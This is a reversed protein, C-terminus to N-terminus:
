SRRSRRWVLVGALLAILSLAGVTIATNRLPALLENCRSEIAADYTHHRNVVSGCYEARTPQLLRNATVLLGVASSVLLELAAIRLLRVRSRVGPLAATALCSVSLVSAIVALVRRLTIPSSCPGSSVTDYLASGCASDGGEARWLLVLVAIIALVGSAAYLAVRLRRSM